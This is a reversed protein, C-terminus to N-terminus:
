ILVGSELDQKTSNILLKLDRAYDPASNVLSRNKVLRGEDKDQMLSIRSVMGMSRSIGHWISQFNALGELSYLYRVAGQM